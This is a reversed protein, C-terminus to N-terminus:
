NHTMLHSFLVVMSYWALQFFILFSSALCTRQVSQLFVSITKLIENEHYMISLYVWVLISMLGWDLHKLLIPPICDICFYKLILVQGWCMGIWLQGGSSFSLFLVNPNRISNTLLILFIAYRYGFTKNWPWSNVKKELIDYCTIFFPDKIVINLAFPLPHIEAALGFTSSLQFFSISHTYNSWWLLIWNSNKIWLWVSLTFKYKWSCCRWPFIRLYCKVSTLLFFTTGKWSLM